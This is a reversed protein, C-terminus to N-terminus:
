STQIISKIKAPSSPNNVEHAEQLVSEIDDFINVFDVGIGIQESKDRAMRVAQSPGRGSSTCLNHTFDYLEEEQLIMTATDNKAAHVLRLPKKRKWSSNGQEALNVGPLGPYWFPGFIHSRREHWWDIWKTIRPSMKAIEDLKSKLVTYKAVTTVHCLKMCTSKFLDRYEPNVDNAKKNVDNKFHWQCGKVCNNCFDEGYVARIAAYNAGSEDCVFCHPNFKIGIKGTHKEMIENFFLFFKTIDETNETRIEM